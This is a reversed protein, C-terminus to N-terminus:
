EDDGDLMSAYKNFKARSDNKEGGAPEDRDAARSPTPRPRAQPREAPADDQKEDQPEDRDASRSPAPRPKRAPPPPTDDQEDQDDSDRGRGVPKASMFKLFIKELEDYSKFKDEAIEPLLPYLQKYIAELDDDNDLLPACSSFESKDYQRQKGKNEYARLNFDAGEWMCFPNFKQESAFKPKIANELYEFLANGFKFLFVKGENEPNGPDSIVYINAIYYARRTFPSLKDKLEKSPNDGRQEFFWESVPDKEGKLTTRSYEVYKQGNRKIFHEYRRVYPYDEGEPEPLFRIVAEGVGSKDVTMTWFRPDRAFGGNNDNEIKKSLADVSEKSKKRLAAFSM